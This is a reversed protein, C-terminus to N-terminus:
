RMVETFAPDALLASSVLCTWQAPLSNLQAEPAAEGGAAHRAPSFLRHGIWAATGSAKDPAALPMSSAGQTGAAASQVDRALALGTQLGWTRQLLLASHQGILLLRAQATRPTPEGGRWLSFDVVSFLTGRVNAVGVFWPQMLPVPFIQPLPLVEGSGDLKVLWRAGGHLDESGSEVDLWTIRAVEQDGLADVAQAAVATGVAEKM